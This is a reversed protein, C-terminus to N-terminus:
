SSALVGSPKHPLYKNENFVQFDIMLLDSTIVCQASRSFQRMISDSQIQYYCM